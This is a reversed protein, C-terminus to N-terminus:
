LYAVEKLIREKFQPRLANPKGSRAKSEIFSTKDGRPGEDQGGRTDSSKDLNYIM